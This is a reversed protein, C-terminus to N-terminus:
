IRNFAQGAPVMPPQCQGNMACGKSKGSRMSPLTGASQNM